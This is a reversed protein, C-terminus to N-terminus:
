TGGEAEVSARSVSSTPRPATTYLAIAAAALVAAACGLAVTSWDMPRWVGLVVVLAFLLPELHQGFRARPADRVQVLAPSLRDTACPQGLLRRMRLARPRTVAHAWVSQFVFLGAMGALWPIRTFSWGYYRAVLWLGSAALLVVGPMLFRKGLVEARRGARILTARDSARRIREDVLWLAAVATGLLAAGLLHAALLWGYSM